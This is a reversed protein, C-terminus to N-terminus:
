SKKNYIATFIGVSTKITIKATLIGVSTKITIKATFIGVLVM